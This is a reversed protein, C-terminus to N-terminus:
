GFGHNVKSEYLLSPQKNVYTILSEIEETNDWNM